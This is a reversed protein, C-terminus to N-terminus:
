VFGARRKSLFVSGERHSNPLESIESVPRWSNKQSYATLDLASRLEWFERRSEDTSLELIFDSREFCDVDLGTLVDIESGEADIKFLDFGDSLSSANVVDVAFEEVPGYPHKKENIFSGTTNDLIRTFNAKGSYNSVAANILSSESYHSLLGSCVAFHEPDPEFSTVKYGLECLIISHLGLNCGIDCVTNYRRRNESYFKFILLEDIGFLHRSSINGMSINPFPFELGFLRISIAGNDLFDQRFRNELLERCANFFKSNPNQLDPNAWIFDILQTISFDLMVGNEHRSFDSNEKLM